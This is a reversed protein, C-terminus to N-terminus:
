ASVRILLLLFYLVVRSSRASRPFDFAVDEAQKRRADFHILSGLRAPHNMLIFLVSILYSPCFVRHWPDNLDTM